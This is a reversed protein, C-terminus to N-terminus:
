NEAYYYITDTLFQDWNGKLRFGIWRGKNDVYIREKGPVKVSIEVLKRGKLNFFRWRHETHTSQLDPNPKRYSKQPISQSIDQISLVMEGTSNKQEYCEDSDSLSDIVQKSKKSKTKETVVIGAVDGQKLLQNYPKKAEVKCNEPHDAGNYGASSYCINSDCANSGDLKKTPVKSKSFISSM